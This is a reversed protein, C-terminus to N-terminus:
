PRYLLQGSNYAAFCGLGDKINTFILSPEIFPNDNNGRMELSRHYRFYNEDTNYVEMTVLAISSRPYVTFRNGNGYDYVSAQPLLIRGVPSTFSIGDLNGDSQFDNRGITEDWNFNFRNRVRKEKFTEASLGDPINYDLDVSARVRYFNTDVRIDDWTMKLTLTTDTSVENSFTTDIVFSKPIVVKGPVTCNATVTRKGDTVNLYYTKSALISFVTRDLSYLQSVTDYPVIAEKIGDSITVIANRVVGGRGTVDGFVPVSETVVVNIRSSQPSIFCQVVLKSDVQPLKSAPIDTILSECASFTIAVFLLIIHAFRM